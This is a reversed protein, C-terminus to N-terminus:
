AAAAPGLPERTPVLTGEQRSLGPPAVGVAAAAEVVAELATPTAAEVAAVRVARLGVHVELITPETAGPRGVYPAVAVRVADATEM